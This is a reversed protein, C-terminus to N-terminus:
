VPRATSSSRGDVFLCHVVLITTRDVVVAVRSPCELPAHQGKSNKEVARMCHSFFSFFLFFSFFFFPAKKRWGAPCDTMLGSSRIGSRLTKHFGWPTKKKKDYIIGDLRVQYSKNETESIIHRGRKIPKAKNETGGRAQRQEDREINYLIVRIFPVRDCMLVRCCLLLVTSVNRVLITTTNTKLIM